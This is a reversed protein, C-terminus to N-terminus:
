RTGGLAANNVVVDIGGVEEITSAFLAQVDDESTVDCVFSAVQRGFLDELEAACRALREAHRDSLVVTAGEQACRKATAFGIGTGAAATILVSKGDLLSHGVPHPRPSPAM